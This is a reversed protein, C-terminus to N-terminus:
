SRETASLRQDLVEDEHLRLPVRLAEARRRLQRYLQFRLPGLLAYDSTLHLRRDRGPDDHTAELVARREEFWDEGVEGKERKRRLILMQRERDVIEPHHNVAFVRPMAGKSDRAFELMTLADGAPGGVGRTEYGIALVGAPLPREQPILDYLRHDVVPLRHGDPLEDALRAFWPHRRAEPTLVNDLIGASKGGKAAGRLVPRAVGSWRCMVGFTHCVAFLAAHEDALVREFLEFVRPEWAPDEVIGQTGLSVGDNCHPDIHGPGGTGLYLAFRGGPGEPIMHRRRVDYSITRVRLGARRLRPGLDCVADQVAHVLSDHGLNPWGHNMDLVAVDIVHAAPAPVDAPQEVRAYEFLGGGTAAECQALCFEQGFRGKNRCAIPLAGPGGSM